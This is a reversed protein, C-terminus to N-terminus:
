RAAGGQPEFIIQVEVGDGKWGLFHDGEKISEVVPLEPLSRSLLVQTGKGSAEDVGGGHDGGSAEEEVPDQSCLSTGGGQAGGDNEVGGEKCSDTAM